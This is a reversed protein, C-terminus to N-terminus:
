PSQRCQLVAREAKDHFRGRPFERLYDKYLPIAATCGDRRHSLIATYALLEAAQTSSPYNERFAATCGAADEAARELQIRCLLYHASRHILPERRTELIPRLLRQAGASDGRKYAIRALDYRATDVRRDSPHERILRVLLSEGGVTNGSAIAQEARVYLAEASEVIVTRKAPRTTASEQSSLAVSKLAVTRVAPSEIRSPPGDLRTLLVYGIDVRIELSHNSVAASFAANTATVLLEGAVVRTAAAASAGDVSIEGAALTIATGDSDSDIRADTGQSVRLKIGSPLERWLPLETPTPPPSEGAGDSKSDSEILAVANRADSPVFWNRTLVVGVLVAAVAVIAGFVARGRRSSVPEVVAEADHVLVGLAARVRARALDDFTPSSRSLLDVVDKALDPAANQHESSM